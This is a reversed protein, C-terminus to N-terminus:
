QQMCIAIGSPVNLASCNVNDTHWLYIIHSKCMGKDGDNYISASIYGPISKVGYIIM